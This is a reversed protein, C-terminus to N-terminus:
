IGGRGIKFNFIRSVLETSPEFVMEPKRKSPCKKSLVHMTVAIKRRKVTLFHVTDATDNAASNDFPRVHQCQWVTVSSVSRGSWALVLASHNLFCWVAM